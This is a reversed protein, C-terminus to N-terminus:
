MKNFLVFNLFNTISRFKSAKPLFLTSIRPNDAPVTSNEEPYFDAIHPINEDLKNDYSGASRIPTNGTVVGGNMGMMNINNGSDILPHKSDSISKPRHHNNAATLPSAAGGNINSFERAHISHNARDAATISGNSSKKRKKAAFVPSAGSGVVHHHAHGNWDPHDSADKSKRGAGGRM